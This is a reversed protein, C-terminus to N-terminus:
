ANQVLPPFEGQFRENSVPLTASVRPIESTVIVGAHDALLRIISEAAHPTLTHETAEMGTGLKDIWIRGDPNVMVELVKPDALADGIEPGLAHHLAEIKRKSTDVHHKM